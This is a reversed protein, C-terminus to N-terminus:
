FKQIAPSKMAAQVSKSLCPYAYRNCDLLNDKESGVSADSGCHIMLVLADLSPKTASYVLKDSSMAGESQPIRYEARPGYVLPLVHMCFATVFTQLPM